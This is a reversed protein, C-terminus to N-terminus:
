GRGAAGTVRFNQSLHDHIVAERCSRAMRLTTGHHAPGHSGQAFGPRSVRELPGDRVHGGHAILVITLEAQLLVLYECSELSQLVLDFAFFGCYAGDVAGPQGDDHAPSLRPEDDPRLGPAAAGGSGRLRRNISRRAFKPMWCSSAM